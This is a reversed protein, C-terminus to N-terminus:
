RGDWGERKGMKQADSEGTETAVVVNRANMRNDMGFRTTEGSVVLSHGTPGVTEEADADIPLSVLASHDM